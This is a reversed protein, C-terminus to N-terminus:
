GRSPRRSGATSTGGCCPTSMPTTSMPPPLTMATVQSGTKTTGCYPQSREAHNATCMRAESAATEPSAGRQIVISRFRGSPIVLSCNTVRQRAICASHSLSPMATM